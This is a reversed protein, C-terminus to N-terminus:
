LWRVYGKLEEYSLDSRNSFVIDASGDGDDGSMWQDRCYWCVRELLSRVASFYLRYRAQFTQPERTSPKHILLVIVRLDARAIADLYPLRHEHRIDRFHLPKKPERGLRVRVDDVLKVIQVDEAKRTIVASLVFWETSGGGFNFGEDGSEDIYVVFSATMRIGAGYRSSLGNDEM